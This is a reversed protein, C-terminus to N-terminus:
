TSCQIARICLHRGLSQADTALDLWWRRDSSLSERAHSAPAHAGRFSAGTMLTKPVSSQMLANDNPHGLFDHVILGALDAGVVARHRHVAGVGNINLETGLGGLFRRVPERVFRHHGPALASEPSQRVLGLFSAALAWLPDREHGQRSHGNCVRTGTVSLSDSM